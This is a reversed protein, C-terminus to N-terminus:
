HRSRHLREEALRVIELVSVGLAGAVRELEELPVHRDFATFYRRFTKDPMGCRTQIEKHTIGQEKALDQITLGIARELPTATVTQRTM